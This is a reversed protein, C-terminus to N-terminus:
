SSESSLKDNPIQRRHSQGRCFHFDRPIHQLFTIWRRIVTVISSPVPSPLCAAFPYVKQLLSLTKQLQLQILIEPTKRYECFRLSSSYSTCYQLHLDVRTCICVVSDSCPIHHAISFVPTKPSSNQGTV